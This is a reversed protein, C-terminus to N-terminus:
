LGLVGPTGDHRWMGIPAKDIQHSFKTLVGDIKIWVSASGLALWM